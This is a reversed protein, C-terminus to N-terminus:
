FAHAFEMAVCSIKESVNPALSSFRETTEATNLSDVGNFSGDLVMISISAPVFTGDSGM